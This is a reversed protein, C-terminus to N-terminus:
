ELEVSPLIQVLGLLSATILSLHFSGLLTTDESLCVFNLRYTM